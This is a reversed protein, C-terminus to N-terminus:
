RPIVAGGLVRELGPVARDGIREFAVGLLRDFLRLPGNLTLEADYTVICGTATPEVRIEDHSTILSTHAVLLLRHPADHEIVNYRMVTTTGAKVTLEYITGVGGDGVLRVAKKTGPDWEPFHTVDSMYAFADSPSRPSAISVTYRAM